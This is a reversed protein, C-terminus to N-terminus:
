CVVGTRERILVKQCRQERARGSLLPVLQCVWIEEAWQYLKALNEFTCLFVDTDEGETFKPLTPKVGIYMDPQNNGAERQGQLKLAEITKAQMEMMMKMIEFTENGRQKQPASTLSDVDGSINGAKAASGNDEANVAPSSADVVDESLAKVLEDKNLGEFPLGKEECM